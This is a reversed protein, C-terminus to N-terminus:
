STAAGTAQQQRTDPHELQMTTGCSCTFPQQGFGKTVDGTHKIMTESSCTPCVLDDHDRLETRQDM